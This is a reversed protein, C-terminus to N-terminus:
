GYYRSDTWLISEKKLVLGVGASGTFDSVYALVGDFAIGRPAM